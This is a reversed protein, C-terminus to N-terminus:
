QQPPAPPEAPPPAPAPADSVAPTDARAPSAAPTEPSELSKIIDVLDALAIEAKVVYGDMDRQVEPSVKSPDGLNTLIVIKTQMCGYSPDNRLEKLVQFGDKKPMMVDLFILDPHYAKANLLGDEGDVATAVEYGHASLFTKYLERLEPNDEVLLIRQLGAV